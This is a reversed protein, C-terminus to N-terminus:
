EIKKEAIPMLTNNKQKSTEEIKVEIKDEDLEEILSGKGKYAQKKKNSDDGKSGMSAMSDYMTEVEERKVHVMKLKLCLVPFIGYIFFSLILAPLVFHFFYRTPNDHAPISIFGWYALGVLGGGIITRILRLPWWTHVWDLCDVHVLSYSTGFGM